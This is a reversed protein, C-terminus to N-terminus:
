EREKLLTYIELGLSRMEHAALSNQAFISCRNVNAEAYSVRQSLATKAVNFGDDHLQSVTHLFVASRKNVANMVALLVPDSNEYATKSQQAFANIWGLGVSDDRSPRCPTIIVDALALCIGLEQNIAGQSDICLVDASTEEAARQIDAESQASIAAISKLLPDSSDNIWDHASRQFDADLITVKKGRVGFYAAINVCLTSKGSGGKSSAFTIIKTM